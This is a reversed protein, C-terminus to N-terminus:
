PWRTHAPSSSHHTRFGRPQPALPTALLLRLRSSFFHFILPPLLALSLQLPSSLPPLHLHLTSSLLSLRLFPSLIGVSIAMLWFGYLACRRGGVVCWGSRYWEGCERKSLSSTKSTRRGFVRRYSREREGLLETIVMKM